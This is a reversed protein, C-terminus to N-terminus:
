GNQKRKNSPEALKQSDHFLFSGETTQLSM